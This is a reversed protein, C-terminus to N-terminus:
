LSLFVVFRPLSIFLPSTEEVTFHPSNIVPSVVVVASVIVAEVCILSMIISVLVINKEIHSNARVIGIFDFSVLRMCFSEELITFVLFRFLRLHKRRDLKGTM